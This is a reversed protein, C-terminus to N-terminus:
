TLVSCTYQCDDKFSIAGLCHAHVGVHRHIVQGEHKNCMYRFKIQHISKKCFVLLDKEEHCLSTTFNVSHSRKFYHMSSKNFAM